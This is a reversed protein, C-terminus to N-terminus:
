VCCLPTEEEQAGGSPQKLPVGCPRKLRQQAREGLHCVPLTLVDVKAPKLKPCGAPGIQPFCLKKDAQQELVTRILAGFASLLGGHM